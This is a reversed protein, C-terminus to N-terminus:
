SLTDETLHSPWFSIGRSNDLLSDYDDNGEFRHQYKQLQVRLDSHWYAWFGVLFCPSLHTLFSQNIGSRVSSACVSIIWSHWRYGRTWEGSRKSQESYENTKSLTIGRSDLEQVAKTRSDRIWDNWRNKKFKSWILISNRIYGIIWVM